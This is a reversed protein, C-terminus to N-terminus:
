GARLPALHWRPAAPENVPHPPQEGRLVTLVNEAALAAMRQSSERTLGAVHPTALVNPLGLLPNDAGPPERKFVDLAAGALRGAVLAAALAEEDILEGRATNVIYASPKMQAIAAADVIDRTERTAPAHLSVVDATSLLEPMSVLRVGLSAAAVRDPYTDFAIVHMGCARAREAVQRGIRGFGVLGLIKGDLEAGLTRNWEGARTEQALSILGRLLALILAMAHDAVSRENTGPTITVWIGLDSAAEVDIADYGVGSRAVVQLREASQLALRSFRDTGAIVADVGGLLPILEEVSAPRGLPTAILECGSARLDDAHPGPTRFFTLSTVLVRPQPM